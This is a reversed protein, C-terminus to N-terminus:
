NKKSGNQLAYDLPRVVRDMEKWRPRQAITLHIEVFRTSRPPIRRFERASPRCATASGHPLFEDSAPYPVLFVEQGAAALSRRLNTLFIVSHPLQPQLRMCISCM